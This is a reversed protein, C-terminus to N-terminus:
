RLEHSIYRQYALKTGIIHDKATMAEQRAIRGPIVTLLITLLVFACKPLLLNIADNHLYTPSLIIYNTNHSVYEITSLTFRIVLGLSAIVTFSKVYLSHPNSERAIWIDLTQKILFYVSFLLFLLMSWDTIIAISENYASNYLYVNFCAWITLILTKIVTIVSPDAVSIFFMTTSLISIRYCWVTFHFCNEYSSFFGLFDSRFTIQLGLIFTSLAFCARGILIHFNGEFRYISFIDIFSDLTMPSAGILLAVGVNKFEPSQIIINSDILNEKSSISSLLPCLCIIGCVGIILNWYPLFRSTSASLLTQRIIEKFKHFLLLM